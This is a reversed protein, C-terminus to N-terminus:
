CWSGEARLVNALIEQASTEGVHLKDLLWAKPLTVSRVLFTM